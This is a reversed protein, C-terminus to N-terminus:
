GREAAIDPGGAGAPADFAPTVFGALEACKECRPSRRDAGRYRQDPLKFGCLATTPRPRHIVVAHAYRSASPYEEWVVRPLLEEQRAVQRVHPVPRVEIEPLVRRVGPAPHWASDRPPAHTARSRDNSRTVPM